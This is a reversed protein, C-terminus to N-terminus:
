FRPRYGTNFPYPDVFQDTIIDMKIQKVVNKAGLARILNKPNTLRFRYAFEGPYDEEPAGEAFNWHPYLILSGGATDMEVHTKLILHIVDLYNRFTVVDYNAGRRDKVLLSGSLVWELSSEFDVGQFSFYKKGTYFADSRRGNNFEYELPRVPAPFWVHYTLGGGTTITILPPSQGDTWSAIIM